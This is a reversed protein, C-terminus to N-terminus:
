AVAEETSTELVRELREAYRASRARMAAGDDTDGLAQAALTTYGIRFALYAVRHFPFIRHVTADGSAAAYAALLAGEEADDLDLEASAGALDWAAHQAGPLFHDDHHSLADTKVFGAPTRLWEHPLLRADCRTTPASRVLAALPEIRRVASLWSDGLSERVNTRIMELLVDVHPDDGAPHDRGLYAIYRAVHDRLEASASGHGVPKGEVWRTVLFGHRLAVPEPAWGDAHLRRGRELRPRGYAGLGVFKLLLPPQAGDSPTFLLKRQEHQPQVPPRPGSDVVVDRWAGASIDRLSGPGLAHTLRGSRVWLEDFDGVFKRHRPWRTRAADNLLRAPDPNWSPFFVIREEAVGLRLLAEAVATFSSGSLGPGEDVIAFWEDRAGRVVDALREGVRLERAFPHGGPRVTCSRVAAGAEALTAAVVASLSTGISRIGIVLVRAPRSEAVFRRAAAIYTEPFLAYYAYGEPVRLHVRDPLPLAAAERAAHALAPASAALAAGDGNWSRVVAHGLLRTVRRLAGALPTLDDRDPMEADAVAAELEGAQVLLEVWDDHTPQAALPVTLSCAAACSADLIRRAEDERAASRYILM